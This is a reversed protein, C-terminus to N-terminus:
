ALLNFEKPSYKTIAVRDKFSEEEQYWDKMLKYSKPFKVNFDDLYEKNCKAEVLKLHYINHFSSPTLSGVVKGKDSVVVMCKFDVHTSIWQLVDITQLVVPRTTILHLRSRQLRLLEEHYLEEDLERGDSDRVAQLPLKISKSIKQIYDYM